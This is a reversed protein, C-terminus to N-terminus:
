GNAKIDKIYVKQYVKDDLVSKIDKIYVKQYVTDDLVAKIDNIYIYFSKKLFEVRLM